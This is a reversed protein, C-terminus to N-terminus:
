IQNAEKELEEFLKNAIFNKDGFVDKKICISLKNALKRAMKGKDKVKAVLPHAYLFGYKPPKSGTKLFRFMAKEAGLTQLTSSPMLALERLSGAVNLMRAAITPRALYAFNPAIESMIREIELKLTDEFKQFTEFQDIMSYFGILDKTDFNGGLETERKVEKVKRIISEISNEKIEPWFIEIFDRIRKGIINKIKTLDDYMKIYEKVLDEKTYKESIKKSTFKLVDKQSVQFKLMQRLIKIEKDSLSYYDLKNFLVADEPITQSTYIKGDEFIVINNLRVLAYKM